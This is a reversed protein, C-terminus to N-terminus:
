KNIAGAIFLRCDNRVSDGNELVNGTIRFVFVAAECPPLLESAAYFRM